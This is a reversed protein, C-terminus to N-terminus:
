ETADIIDYYFSQGDKTTVKKILFTVGSIDTGESMMDKVYSLKDFLVTQQAFFIFEEGTQTFKANVLYTPDDSITSKGTLRKIKSITFPCNIIEAVKYSPKRSSPDIDGSKYDAFINSM